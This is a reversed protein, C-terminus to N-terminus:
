KIPSDSIKDGELPFELTAVQKGSLFVEATIKTAPHYYLNVRCQNLYGKPALAHMLAKVAAAMPPIINDKGASWVRFSRDVGNVEIQSFYTPISPVEEWFSATVGEELVNNALALSGDDREVLVLTEQVSTRSASSLTVRLYMGAKPCMGCLTSVYVGGSVGTNKWISEVRKSMERMILSNDFENDYGLSVLSQMLEMYSRYTRRDVSKFIDSM